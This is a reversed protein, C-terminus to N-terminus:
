YFQYFIVIFYIAHVMKMDNMDNLPVGLLSWLQVLLMMATGVIDWGIM